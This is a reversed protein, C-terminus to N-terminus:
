GKIEYPLHIVFCAGNNENFVNISGNLHKEVITKSMYLGLGTGSQEDKTSFYPNFIKDIINNPIGSANDCIKIEVNTLADEIYIIIKRNKINNDVLAEKANKIINILVQMLERTYTKIKKSNAFNTVVEIDNNELSKGIVKFTKDFIEKVFIEETKKIPQFFNKFDEITNSLEQTQEIIDVASQHLVKSDLIDLDIDAMINNADMSIISLPQRWQHAIMGIMEGMVAHRSQALIMEDKYNLERQINKRNHEVEYITQTLLNAKVQAQYAMARMRLSNETMRKNVKITNFLQQSSESIFDKEYKNHM